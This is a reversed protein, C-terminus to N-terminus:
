WAPLQAVCVDGETTVDASNEWDLELFVFTKEVKLSCNKM